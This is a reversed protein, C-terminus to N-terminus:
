PERFDNHDSSMYRGLSTKKLRINQVYIRKGCRISPACAIQAMSVTTIFEYRTNNSWIVLILLCMLCLNWWLFNDMSIKVFSHFVSHSASSSLHHSYNVLVHCRRIWMRSQGNLDPFNWQPHSVVQNSVGFYPILQPSRVGFRQGVSTVWLVILGDLTVHGVPFQSSIAWVM